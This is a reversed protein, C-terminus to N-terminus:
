KSVLVKHPLSPDLSPPPPAFPPLHLLLFLVQAASCLQKIREGKEPGASVVAGCQVMCRLLPFSLLPSGMTIMDLWHGLLLSLVQLLQATPGVGM